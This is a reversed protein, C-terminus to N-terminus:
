YAATELHPEILRSEELPRIGKIKVFVIPQNLEKRLLAIEKSKATFEPDNEIEFAILANDPLKRTIEEHAIVFRDFETSIELSKEFYEKDTM